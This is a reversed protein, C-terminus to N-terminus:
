PTRPGLFNILGDWAPTALPGLYSRFEHLTRGADLPRNLIGEFLGVMVLTVAADDAKEALDDIVDAVARVADQPPSFLRTLLYQSFLGTEIYSMHRDDDPGFTELRWAEYGSAAAMLIPMVEAAPVNRGPQDM